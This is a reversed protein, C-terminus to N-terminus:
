EAVVFRTTRIEEASEISLFYVGPKLATCSFEYNLVFDLSQQMVIKGQVDSVTFSKMPVDGLSFNVTSTAPSPFVSLEGAPRPINGMSVNLLAAYANVRGHGYYQDWGAVDESSLGVQDEASAEITLKIQAPTLSPNIALLLSALGTVLPTAQSTGGWYSNYNTNSNYILGYIYNGPAVVSIHNGYNSGSASSWFFPSSRTDNADTSGVAIVGSYGAPYYTVNNDTNMMCACITVNNNLAYNIANLLTSSSGSGGVSMNIVDVGNDVAYYLADAWWSYSGFNNADLGKLTMLKCNWNVGAYGINNNGTAGIIGTVNTGHGHDDTPNNDANAFDWGNVDDIYGNNDDDIANGAIEGANVWLRNSVEPHDLKLGSDITGVVTTSVGTTISWANEMDIDAGSVAPGPSFSGNNHLGWQDGYYQDNPVTAQTGAGKGTHDREAYLVAPNKQHEALASLLDCASTFDITFFYNNTKRGASHKVVHHGNYKRNIADSSSNGTFPVEGQDFKPCPDTHFQVVLRKVNAQQANAFITLFVFVIGLLSKM